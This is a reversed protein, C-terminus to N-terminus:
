RILRRPEPLATCSISGTGDSIRAKSPRLAQAYSRGEFFHDPTSKWVSRRVEYGTSRDGSSLDPATPHSGFGCISHCLSVYARYAYLM